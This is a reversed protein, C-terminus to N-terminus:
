FRIIKIIMIGFCITLFDKKKTKPENGKGINISKISSYKIAKILNKNKYFEM